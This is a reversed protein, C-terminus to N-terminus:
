AETCGNWTGDRKPLSLPNDWRGLMVDLTNLIIGLRVYEQDSAKLADGCDLDIGEMALTELWYDASLGNPLCREFRRRVEDGRSQDEALVRFLRTAATEEAAIALLLNGRGPTEICWDRFAFVDETRAWDDADDTKQLRELDELMSQGWALREAGGAGVSKADSISAPDVNRTAVVASFGEIGKVTRFDEGALSRVGPVLILGTAVLVLAIRSSDHHPFRMRKM